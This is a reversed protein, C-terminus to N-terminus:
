ILTKYIDRVMNVLLLSVPQLFFSVVLVIAEQESPDFLYTSNDHFARFSPDDVYTVPSPVEYSFGDLHIVIFSRTARKKRRNGSERSRPFECRIKNKSIIICTSESQFTFCFAICPFM